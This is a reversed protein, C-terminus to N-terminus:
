AEEIAVLTALVTVVTEDRLKTIPLWREDDLLIEQIPLLLTTAHNVLEIPRSVLLAVKTANLTELEPWPVDLSPIPIKTVNTVEARPGAWSPGVIRGVQVVLTESPRYPPTAVESLLVSVSVVTADKATSAQKRVIKWSLFPQTITPLNASSLLVGVALIYTSELHNTVASEFTTTAIQIPIWKSAVNISLSTNSTPWALSGSLTESPRSSVLSSTQQSANKRVNTSSLMSM